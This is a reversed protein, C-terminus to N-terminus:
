TLAVTFATGLVAAGFALWALYDGARGSHLRRVALIPQPVTHGIRTAGVVLALACGLAGYVYGSLEHPPASATAEGIFRAAAASAADALGPVLGWLVGAAILVYAPAALGGARGEPAEEDDGVEDARSPPEDDVFVARAVRLVAGGTLGDALLFVIPVWWPAGHEALSRGLWPGSLPLGAMALGGLAVFVGLRPADRGKGILEGLEIHGHRDQLAGVAVFLGAKVAGDGAIYLAAGAIGDRELLALAILIVGM